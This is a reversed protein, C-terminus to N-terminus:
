EDVKRNEIERLDFLITIAKGFEEPEKQSLVMKGKRRAWFDRFRTLEPPDNQTPPHTANM